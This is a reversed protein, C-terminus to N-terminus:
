ARTPAHDPFLDSPTDVGEYIAVGTTVVLDGASHGNELLMAETVVRWETMIVEATAIDLDPLLVAFTGDGVHSLIDEARLLSMGSEVVDTLAGSDITADPRLSSSVKLTGVTFSRLSNRARSEEQDFRKMFYAVNYAGTAPDIINLRRVTKGSRRFRDFYDAFVSLAIGLGTGLFVGLAITLPKNPGVPRRPVTPPDLPRLEFADNLDFIYEVTENGLATAYAAVDNPRTGRVTIELVNTGAVVDARVTFGETSVEESLQAAALNKILESRAITAYTSNIEVGRILTDIARVTEASDQSRPRVVFTGSSEYVWPQQIVFVSTIATVVVLTTIAVLRNRAVADLYRRLEM